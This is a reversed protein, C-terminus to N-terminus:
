NSFYEAISIDEITISNLSFICGIAFLIIIDCFFSKSILSIEISTTFVNFKILASLSYKAEFTISTQSKFM